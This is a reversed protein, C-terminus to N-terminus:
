PFRGGPFVIYITVCPLINICIRRTYASWHAGVWFSGAKCLFGVFYNGIFFGQTKENPFYKKHEGTLFYDLQKKM